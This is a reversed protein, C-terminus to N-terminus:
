AKAPKGMTSPPSMTLAVDNAVGGATSAGGDVVTIHNGAGGPLNAANGFLGASFTTSGNVVGNDATVGTSGAYAGATDSADTELAWYNLLGNHIGAGQSALVSVAFVSTILTKKM